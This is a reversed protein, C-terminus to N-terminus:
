FKQIIVPLISEFSEPKMSELLALIFDVAIKDKWLSRMATVLGTVTVGAASTLIALKDPANRLVFCLSILVLFAAIIVGMCVRFENEKSARLKSLKIKLPDLELKSVDDGMKILSHSKLIKKLESM